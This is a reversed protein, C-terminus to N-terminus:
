GDGARNQPKLWAQYDRWDAAQMEEVETETMREVGTFGVEMFRPYEAAALVDRYDTNAVRVNEQVKELSGASLKLIALHVRHPERDWAYESLAELVGEPAESPFDRRIVRLVDEETVRPVPDV